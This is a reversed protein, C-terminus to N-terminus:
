PAPEGAVLDGVRPGSRAPAGSTPGPAPTSPAAGPNSKPTDMGPTVKPGPPAEPADPVVSAFLDMFSKLGCGSSKGSPAPSDSASERAMETMDRLIDETSKPQPPKKQNPM